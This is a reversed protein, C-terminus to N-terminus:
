HGDGFCLVTKFAGRGGMAAVAQDMSYAESEDLPAVNTRLQDLVGRAVGHLDGSKWKCYADMTAVVVKM